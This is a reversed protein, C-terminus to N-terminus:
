TGGCFGRDNRPAKGRDNQPFAGGQRLIQKGAFYIRLKRQAQQGGGQMAYGALLRQVHKTRRNVRNLIVDAATARPGPRPPRVFNWHIILLSIKKYPPPM